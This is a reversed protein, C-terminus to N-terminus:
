QKKRIPTARGLIDVMAIPERVIENLEFKGMGQGERITALAASAVSPYAFVDYPLLNVAYGIDALSGITVRSLPMLVGSPEAFGTMLEADLGIGTASTNERWHVNATGTGFGAEVPVTGNGCQAPLTGGHFLCGAVAQQGIFAVGATGSGSVQGKTAWLTGFGVTHLMEHLIVAALRNTTLLNQLDATDFNMVAILTLGGGSRVFCPGASGLVGGVGDIPAVQAFVIIDDASESLPTVGAIGCGSIDFATLTVNPVDGTILGQIRSAAAFFTAQIAPDIPPGFFRVDLFYDSTVNATATGTFAGATARLTQPGTSKGMTWTPSVASGNADTVVTASGAPLSGGGGTVAFSVSVNPVGNNFKDGVKFIVAQALTAGALANQSNGTPATVQTPVDPTGTASITLPTALGNVTVTLTNAGSTNGLTWTGVSTGGSSTKTPSGAVTGGGSGVAITIGVDNLANGSADRVVFQPAPTVVNAVTATISTSAVLAATAPKAPALGGDGGACGLITVCAALLAPSSRLMRMETRIPTPAM